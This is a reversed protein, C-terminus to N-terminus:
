KRRRIALVAGLGLLGLAIVSPEPVVPWAGLVLPGISDMVVAPPPTPSGAGLTYNAGATMGLWGTASSAFAAAFNAGLNATWGRVQVAITDGVGTSFPMSGALLADGAGGNRSTLRGASVGSNGTIFGTARWNANNAGTTGAPAVYLEFQYLNAGRISNGAANTSVLSTSSNGLVVIGQGFTAVAVGCMALTAIIKKMKNQVKKTLNHDSNDAL